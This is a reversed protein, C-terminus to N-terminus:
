YIGPGSIETVIQKSPKESFQENKNELKRDFGYGRFLMSFKSTSM